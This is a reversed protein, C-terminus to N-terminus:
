TYLNNVNFKIGRIGGGGGVGGGVNEQNLPIQSVPIVTTSVSAAGPTGISVSSRQGSSSNIAQVFYFRSVTDNLSGRLVSNSKGGTNSPVTAFPLGAPETPTSCEFVAYSDAGQVENWAVQVANPHSITTVAPAVLPFLPGQLQNMQTM